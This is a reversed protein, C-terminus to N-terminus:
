LKNKEKEKNIIIYFININEIKFIVVYKFNDLKKKM